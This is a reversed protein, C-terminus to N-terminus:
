GQLFPCTPEPQFFVWIRQPTKYVRMPMCLSSVATSCHSQNWTDGTHFGLINAGAELPANSAHLDSILQQGHPRQHTCHTYDTSPFFHFFFLLLFLPFPLLTLLLILFFFIPFPLYPYPVSCHQDYTADTTQFGLWRACSLHGWVCPVGKSSLTWVGPREARIWLIKGKEQPHTPHRKSPYKQRAAFRQILSAKIRQKKEVWILLLSPSLVILFEGNALVFLCKVLLEPTDAIYIELRRRPVSDEPSM